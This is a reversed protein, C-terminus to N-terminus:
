LSVEMCGSLVNLDVTTNTEGPFVWRVEVELTRLRRFQQETVRRVVALQECLADTDSTVLVEDVIQTTKRVIYTRFVVWIKKHGISSCSFIRM